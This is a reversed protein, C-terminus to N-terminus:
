QTSSVRSIRWHWKTYSCHMVAPVLVNTAIRANFTGMLHGGGTKRWILKRANFDGVVALPVEGLGRQQRTQLVRQLRTAVRWLIGLDEPGNAVGSPPEYVAM